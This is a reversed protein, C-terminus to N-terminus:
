TYAATVVIGLGTAWYPCLRAAQAGQAPAGLELRDIEHTEPKIKVLNEVDQADSRGGMELRM